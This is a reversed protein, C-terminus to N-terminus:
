VRFQKSRENYTFGAAEARAIVATALTERDKRWWHILHNGDYLATAYCRNLLRQLEELSNGANRIDAVLAAYQPRSPPVPRTDPPLHQLLRRTIALM